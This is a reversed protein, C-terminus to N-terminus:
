RKVFLAISRGSRQGGGPRPQSDFSETTYLFSAETGATNPMAFGIFTGLGTVTVSVANTAQTVSYTGSVNLDSPTGSVNSSVHYGCAGSQCDEVLDAAIGKAAVTHGGISNFTVTGTYLLNTLHGLTDQIDRFIFMQYPGSLSGINLGSEQKLALAVAGGAVDLFPILALKKDAGLTGSSTEAPPGPNTITFNGDSAM